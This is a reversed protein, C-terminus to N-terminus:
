GLEQLGKAYRRWNAFYHEAALPLFKVQDESLPRALKAPAGLILSSDPFTKEETVLANAGVFCNKGIVSRNMLTAGMGILCNDGITTGHLIVRHGVTVNAGIALPIGDDTHLVSGDQINSKEGITIWENDGRVVAGFWISAGPLLRVKGIVAANPAIWYSGAEPLEPRVGDLAYVTM